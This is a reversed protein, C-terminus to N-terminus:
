KTGDEAIEAFMTLDASDIPTDPADDRILEISEMREDLTKM